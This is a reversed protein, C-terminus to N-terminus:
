RKRATTKKPAPKPAPTRATRPPTSAVRHVSPQAAPRNPTATAVPRQRVPGHQVVPTTRKTSQVRKQTATPKVAGRTRGVPASPKKTKPATRGATKNRLNSTSRSQNVGKAPKSTRGTSPAGHQSKPKPTRKTTIPRFEWFGRGRGVATYGKPATPKAPGFPAWIAGKGILNPQAQANATNPVSTDPPPTGIGGGTDSGTGGSGVAGAQGAAIAASIGNLLDTYDTGGTGGTTGGATTDGGPATTLAGTNPDYVSEGPQLVTQAQPTVPTPAVSGTGTGTATASLKNRYYWVGVGFLVIWLWAPLPGFKRTLTAGIGKAKQKM